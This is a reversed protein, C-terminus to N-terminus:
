AGMCHTKCDQEKKNSVCEELPVNLRLCIRKYCENSAKKRIIFKKKKKESSLSVLDVSYFYLLLDIIFFFAVYLM